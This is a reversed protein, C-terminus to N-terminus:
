RKPQIKIDYSELWSFDLNWDHCSREQWIDWVKELYTNTQYQSWGNVKSLHAEAQEGYGQLQALGIHKVRHCNPCLATLGKLTQIYKDDNYHWIEHCEVPHQSGRDGCVECRYNSQRYTSRRLKDWVSKSVHDRVNSFWCSSPVLEVTLMKIPLSPCEIKHIFLRGSLFDAQQRLFVGNHKFNVAYKTISKRHNIDQLYLKRLSNLIQEQKNTRNM